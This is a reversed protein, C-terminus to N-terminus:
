EKTINKWGPLQNLLDIAGPNKSFFDNDEKKTFSNQKKEQNQCRRNILLAFIMVPVISILYPYESNTKLNAFYILAVISIIYIAMTGIFMLMRDPLPYNDEARLRIRVIEKEINKAETFCGSFNIPEIQGCKPCVSKLEYGCEDCFNGNQHKTQCSPCNM